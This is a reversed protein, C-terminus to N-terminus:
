SWRHIGEIAREKGVWLVRWQYRRLFKPFAADEYRPSALLPRKAGVGMFNYPQRACVAKSESQLNRKRDHVPLQHGHLIPRLRASVAPTLAKISSGM